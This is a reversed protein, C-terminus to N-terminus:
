LGFRKTKPVTQRGGPQYAHRSRHIRVWCEQVADEVFLDDGLRRRFYRSLRPYILMSFPASLGYLIWPWAAGADIGFIVLAQAM